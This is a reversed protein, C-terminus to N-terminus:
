KRCPARPAMGAAAPGAATVTTTTRCVPSRTTITGGTFAYRAAMTELDADTALPAPLAHRWLAIRERLTPAPVDIELLGPVAQVLWNPHGSFTFVVPM